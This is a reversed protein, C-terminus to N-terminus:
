PEWLSWVSVKSGLEICHLFLVGNLVLVDQSPFCTDTLKRVTIFDVVIVILPVFPIKKKPDLAKSDIVSPLYISPM